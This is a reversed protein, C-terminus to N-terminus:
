ANLSVNFALLFLECLADANLSHICPETFKTASDSPFFTEICHDLHFNTIPFTRSGTRFFLINWICTPSRSQEHDPEYLM